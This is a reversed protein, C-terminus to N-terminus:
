HQKPPVQSHYHHHYTNYYVNQHKSTQTSYNFDEHDAYNQLHQQNSPHNQTQMPTHDTTEYNPYDRYNQNDSRLHAYNEYDCHETYYQSYSRNEENTYNQRDPPLMRNLDGNNVRVEGLYNRNDRQPIRNHNYYNENIEGNKQYKEEQNQDGYNVRGEGLYNSFDRQPMQIHDYYNEKNEINKQYNEENGYSQLHTQPLPIPYDKSYILNHNLPVINESYTNADHNNYNQNRHSYNTNNDYTHANNYYYYVNDHHYNPNHEYTPTYMSEHSDELRPRLAPEEASAGLGISRKPPRNSVPPTKIIPDLCLESEVVEHGNTPIPYHHLAQGPPHTQPDQSVLLEPPPNSITELIKEDQRIDSEVVEPDQTPNPDQIM